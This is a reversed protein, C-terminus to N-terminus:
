DASGTYAMTWTDTEKQWEFNGRARGVSLPGSDWQMIGFGKITLGVQFIVGVFDPFKSGTPQGKSSTAEQVWTANTLNMCPAYWAKTQEGPGLIWVM